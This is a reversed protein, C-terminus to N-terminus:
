SLSMDSIPYSYICQTSVRTTSLLIMVKDLILLLSGPMRPEKGMAGRRM